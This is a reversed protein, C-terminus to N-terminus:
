DCQDAVIQGYFIWTSQELDDEQGEHTQIHGEVYHGQPFFMPQGTQLKGQDIPM